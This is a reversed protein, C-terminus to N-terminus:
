AKVLPKAFRAILRRGLGLSKKEIMYWSFIAILYVLTVTLILNLWFPLNPVYMVILQQVPWGWLYTGYSIDPLKPLKIFVPMASVYLVVFFMFSYTLYISAAGGGFLKMLLFVGIIVRLNITISDKYVALLGGLAFCFPIASFTADHSPLWFFLVKEPLLSDLLFLGFVVIAPGKQLAGVLFLAYIVVYNLRFM